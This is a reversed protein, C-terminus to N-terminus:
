PFTITTNATITTAAKLVTTGDADRIELVEDFPVRVTVTGNLNASGIDTNTTNNHVYYLGGGPPTLRLDTVTVTAMCFNDRIAGYMEDATIAVIIDDFNEAPYKRVYAGTANTSDLFGGAADADRAGGSLLLAVVAKGGTGTASFNVGNIQDDLAIWASPIWGTYGDPKKARRCVDYQAPTVINAASVKYVVTNQWEDIPSSGIYQFYNAEVPLKGTNEAYYMLANKTALLAQATEKRKTSEVIKGLMLFGAGSLMGIIILAIAIEIFSFGAESSIFRSFCKSRKM